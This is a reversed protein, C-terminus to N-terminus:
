GHETCVIRKCALAFACISLFSFYYLVLVGIFVDEKKASNNSLPLSCISATSPGPLLFGNVDVSRCLSTKLRRTTFNEFPIAVLACSQHTSVRSATTYYQWVCINGHWIFSPMEHTHTHLLPHPAHARM